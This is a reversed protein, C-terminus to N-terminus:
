TVHIAATGFPTATTAGGLGSLNSEVNYAKVTLAFDAGSDPPPTISLKTLFTQLAQTAAYTTDAPAFTWGTIESAPDGPNTHVATATAGAPLNAASWSVTAGHPIGTLEVKSLTESGDTDQLTVTVPLAIAADEVGSAAGSVLPQDGTADAIVIVTHPLTTVLPASAESTGWRDVTSVAVTLPIDVDSNHHPTLTM